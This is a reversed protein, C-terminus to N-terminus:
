LLQWWGFEGPTLVRSGTVETQGRESSSDSVQSSKLPYVSTKPGAPTMATALAGPLHHLVLGQVWFFFFFFLHKNFECPTVQSETVARRAFSSMSITQLMRFQTHLLNSAPVIHKYVRSANSASSCSTVAPLESQVPAM